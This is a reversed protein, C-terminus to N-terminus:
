ETLKPETLISISDPDMLKEALMFRARVKIAATTQRIEECVTQFHDEDLASLRELWNQDLEQRAANMITQQNRLRATEFKLKELKRKVPDDNFFVLALNIASTIGPLIGLLITIAIAENSESDTSELSSAQGTVDVMSAEVGSFSIERTEWRLYFTSCFLILFVFGIAILTWIHVGNMQYRYYHIFRAAILPLFNLTIACGLTLIISIAQSQYMVRDFVTYLTIADLSSLGIILLAIVADKAWFSQDAKNGRSVYAPLDYLDHKKSM